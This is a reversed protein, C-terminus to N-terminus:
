QIEVKVPPEKFLLKKNTLYEVRKKAFDDWEKGSDCCMQDYTKYESFDKGFYNKAFSSSHELFQKFKDNPILYNFSKKNM